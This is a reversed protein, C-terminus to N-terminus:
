KKLSDQMERIAAERGKEKATRAFGARKNEPFQRVLALYRGQLQRSALQEATIASRKRGRKAGTAAGTGTTSAAPTAAAAATAAAPPRGPPRGPRGPPRGPPRGVSGKPRGPPRGPKRGRRVVAAAGTAAAIGAAAAAAMPGAADRLRQLRAELDSIERGMEEVYRNVDTQSVRRERILRELVYAAQGSSLQSGSSSANKRPRPM